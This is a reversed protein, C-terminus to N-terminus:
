NRGAFLPLSLAGTTGAALAIALAYMCTSDTLCSRVRININGAANSNSNFNFRSVGVIPSGPDNNSEVYTSNEDYISSSLDESQFPITEKEHSEIITLPSELLSDVYDQSALMISLVKEGIVDRYQETNKRIADTVSLGALIDSLIAQEIERPLKDNRILYEM